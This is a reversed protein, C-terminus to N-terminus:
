RKWELVVRKPFKKRLTASEVYGRAVDDPEIVVKIVTVVWHLSYRAPLIGRKVYHFIKTGPTRQSSSVPDFYIEDPDQAALRVQDFFSAVEPHEVLIHDQWVDEALSVTLGRPDTVTWLIRRETM